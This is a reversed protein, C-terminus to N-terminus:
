VNEIPNLDPSQAPWPLRQINEGKMWEQTYRAMHIPANDDQFTIDNGFNAILECWFPILNEKLVEIYRRSNIASSSNKEKMFVLPGKEGGAFCGWVMISKRESRGIEVSSEDSFIIKQWDSVSWNIHANYIRLVNIGNTSLIKHLSLNRDNITTNILNQEDENTIISPRGPRLATETNGQEEVRNLFNFVTSRTCNIAIAISTLTSGVNYIGIIQGKEFNTLQTNKSM